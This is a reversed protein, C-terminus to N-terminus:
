IRQIGPRGVNDSGRSQLLQEYKKEVESKKSNRRSNTNNTNNTNTNKISPTNLYEFSHALPQGESLFSYGDSFGSNMEMSFYPKIGESEGSQNHIQIQNHLWDFVDKGTLPQKDNSLVLTPVSTINPPITPLLDVSVRKVNNSLHSNNLKEIFENSYKCRNSYFLIIDNSKNNNNRNQQGQQQNIKYNPNYQYNSM